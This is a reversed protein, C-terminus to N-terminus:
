PQRAPASVNARRVQNRYSGIYGVTTGAKPKQSLISECVKLDSLKVSLLVTGLREHAVMTRFEDAQIM